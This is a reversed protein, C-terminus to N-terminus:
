MVQRPSLGPVVVPKTSPSPIPELMDDPWEIETAPGFVAVATQTGKSTPKRIRTSSGRKCPKSPGSALLDHHQPRAANGGGRPATMQLNANSMAREGTAASRYAMRM